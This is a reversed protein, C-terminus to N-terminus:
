KRHRGKRPRLMQIITVLAVIAGPLSVLIAIISLIM